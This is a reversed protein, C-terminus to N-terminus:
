TAAGRGGSEGRCPPHAHPRERLARFPVVYANPYRDLLEAATHMLLDPDNVCTSYTYRMEKAAWKKKFRYVGTQGEWTAGWNWRTHGRNVAARVATAILLPLAQLERHSQKVAPTFYEVTRNFYFLLLAAIVQHEHVAVHLEWDRGAQFCRPVLEFFDDSKARGGISLMNQHHMDRLAPMQTADTTVTINSGLAKRVNRRASSDVRALFADLSADSPELDIWQAIRTDEHTKVYGTVPPEFPNPVITAAAVNPRTVRENYAEVLMRTAEPTNATVGGNSGYYPLSNYLCKGEVELRMLPLIGEIRDHEVALLYEDSCQLLAKLFARYKLSAYLLSDPRALLFREYADERSQDLVVIDLTDGSCGM